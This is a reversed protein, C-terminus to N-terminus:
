SETRIAILKTGDPIAVGLSDNATEYSDGRGTIDEIGSGAIQITEILDM